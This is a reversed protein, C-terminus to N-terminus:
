GRRMQYFLAGLYILKFNSNHDGEELEREIEELQEIVFKPLSNINPEYLEEEQNTKMCQVSFLVVSTLLHFQTYSPPPPSHM